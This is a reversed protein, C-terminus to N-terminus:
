WDLSETHKLIRGMARTRPNLFGGYKNAIRRVDANYALTYLAEVCDCCVSKGKFPVFLKKDLVPDFCLCCLSYDKIKRM